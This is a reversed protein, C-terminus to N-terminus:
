PSAGKALRKGIEDVIPLVEWIGRAVYHAGAERYRAEIGDLRRHLEAKELADVEGETLGLENGSQTLGITWMGANLGEEIDSITDGIKVMAAFPRVQLRVANLYCMWPEPRGVPVESACVVVDPAYGKDAAVPTLAAVMPATYGTCSGIKIGRSRMAAAFELLGPIPDAHRAIAAVMMPETLDYLADVAAEDPTKGHRQEWQAIVGPLECMAGLHARKELGMFRRAEAISVEIEFKAFVDVFVAAPGMCGYDVATGAWDLIVAKVPGTCPAKGAAIPM